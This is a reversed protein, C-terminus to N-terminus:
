GVSSSEFLHLRYGWWRSWIRWKLGIALTVRSALVVRGQRGLPEYVPSRWAIDSIVSALIAESWYRAQWKPLRLTSVIADWNASAGGLHKIVQTTPITAIKGKFAISAMWMWDGGMTNPMWPLDILVQRRIIGHFAGNEEVTKYYRVVRDSPSDDLLQTPASTHSFEGARYMQSTGCVLLLDPTSLLKELCASVYNPDIWDDDALAIYMEGTAGKLVAQYNATPGINAAQRICRIRADQRCLRECVQPTDDTSANDSIVVEINKYDQALVFEVARELKQARNYTPIGISVLPTSTM